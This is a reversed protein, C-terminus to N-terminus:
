GIMINEEAYRAAYPKRRGAISFAMTLLGVRGVFMLVIIIIKGAGALNGTAGLSLGVTAFGSVTEFAYNLFERSLEFEVQSQAILLGFLAIGIFIVALLVLTLARTVIEDPVTRRFLNTNPNGRLRSYLVGLFLAFTTTKVGGGASGPSAGIFMLFMILFLTPTQFANLDITNFGATRATVSQFLATWFGEAVTMEAFAHGAELWGILVTGYVILFVSTLLVVRSHLSLRTREARRRRIGVRLVEQIVLFGIGGLIILAMVTVNVLANGRYAVLSDPYLSFGANCFASVSHFIGSYIGETLGLDPIFALSLFLAGVGEIVITMLFIGKILEPLSGVPKHMLTEQLVWRGRLSVGARLYLFFYVSFTMIGLGGIQILGLVVMQGFLSLRTGTDVVILGTVCQASTATFLADLFSLAEGRAALPTSLLLAGLLIAAAYYVMISEGPSPNKWRSKLAALM